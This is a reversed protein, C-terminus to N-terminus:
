RPMQGGDVAGSGDARVDAPRIHRLIVARRLPAAHRSLKRRRKELVARPVCLLARPRRYFACRGATPWRGRWKCSPTLPTPRRVPEEFQFDEYVPAYDVMMMYVAHTNHYFDPDDGTRKCLGGGARLAQELLLVKQGAKSSIRPSALATRVAAIIIVDYNQAM